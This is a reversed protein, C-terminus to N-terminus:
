KPLQLLTLKHPYNKQANIFHQCQGRTKDGRPCYRNFATVEGKLMGTLPYM